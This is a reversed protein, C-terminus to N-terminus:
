ILYLVIHTPCRCVIWDDRLNSMAVSKIASINVRREVGIAAGGDKTAANVLVYLMKSTQVTCLINAILTM